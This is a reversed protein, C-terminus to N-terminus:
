KENITNEQKGNMSSEPHSSGRRIWMLFTITSFANDRKSTSGRAAPTLAAATPAAKVGIMAGGARPMSPKLAAPGTAPLHFLNGTGRM